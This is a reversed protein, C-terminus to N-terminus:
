RELKKALGVFGARGEGNGARALLLVTGARGRGARLPPTPAGPPPPPPPPPDFSCRVCRRLTSPCCHTSAAAAGATRPLPLPPALPPVHPCWPLMSRDAIPAVTRHKLLAHQEDAATINQLSSLGLIDAANRKQVFYQDHQEVANWIHVFLIRRM